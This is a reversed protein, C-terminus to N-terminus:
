IHIKGVVMKGLRERCRTNGMELGICDSIEDRRGRGPALWM